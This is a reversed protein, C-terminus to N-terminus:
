TVEAKGAIESQTPQRPGVAAELRLELHFSGRGWSCRERKFILIRQTGSMRLASKDRLM